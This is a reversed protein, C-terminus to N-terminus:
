GPHVTRARLLAARYLREGKRPQDTALIAAAWPLRPDNEFDEGYEFQLGLFRCVDAEGTIDHGAACDIGRRIRERTGEAGLSKCIDPYLPTFHAAMRAVFDERGEARLGDMVDQRISLM